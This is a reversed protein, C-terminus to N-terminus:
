SLIALVRECAIHKVSDHKVHKLMFKIYALVNEKNNIVSNLLREVEKQVKTEIEEPTLEINRRKNHLKIPHGIEIDNAVAPRYPEFENFLEIEKAM